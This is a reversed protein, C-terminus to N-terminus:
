WVEMKNFFIIYTVFQKPIDLLPLVSLFFFLHVSHPSFARESPSSLVCQFTAKFKVQM